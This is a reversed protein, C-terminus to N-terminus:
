PRQDPRAFGGLNASDTWRVLAIRLLVSAGFRARRGRAIQRGAVGGIVWGERLRFGLTSQSAEGGTM